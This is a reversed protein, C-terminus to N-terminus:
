KKLYIVAHFRHTYHLLLQMEAHLRMSSNVSILVKGLVMLKTYILTQMFFDFLIKM